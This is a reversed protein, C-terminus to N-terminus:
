PGERQARALEFRTTATWGWSIGPDPRVAAVEIVVRKRTGPGAKGLPVESWGSGPEGAVDHALVERGDVVVRQVMRGPSGGPDYPDFLRIALPPLPDPATVVCEAAAMEGPAPEAHFTQIAAGTESVGVLRGREMVCDLVDPEGPFPSLSFRYSRPGDVDRAQVWAVARPTSVLLAAALSAGAAAAVAMRRPSRATAERAGAAIALIMLATAPLFYRGQSVTVAHLGVKLVIAAGLLWVAPSRRPPVLFLTALFLALLGAMEVRLLPSLFDLRRGRSHHSTPLAEPSVSWYLNAAESATAFHLTFASVRAAHFAPRRSIEGLALRMGQRHVEKPDRLLSPQVSALYPRPDVWANVTAGPIYAGLIALGAHETTLAFRGTAAQRQFALLLLPVGAAAACFLLARKRFRGNGFSAAAALPLLVVLMEQRIAAGLTYLLGAAVPHVSGGALSRVALAALAITPFLVWNDQAVVGSFVVQGPWLALLGSALLRSPLPLVGRWLLFPLMPVLGTLVATAIRAADEPSGPFVRFLLSLAMPLGPNFLDWYFGPAALSRDRLFLGFEVLVNFDSFARTPFLTVFALRPLLGAALVLGLWAGERAFWGQRMGPEINEKGRRSLM